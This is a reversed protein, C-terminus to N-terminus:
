KKRRKGRQEEEGGQVLQEEGGHSLDKRRKRGGPSPDLKVLDVTESFPDNNELTNPIIFYEKNQGGSHMIANHSTTGLSVTINLKEVFTKNSSFMTLYASGAAQAEPHNSSEILKFQLPFGTQTELQTLYLKTIM